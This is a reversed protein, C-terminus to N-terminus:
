QSQMIKLLSKLDKQLLSSEPYKELGDNLISLATDYDAANAVTAFSNHVSVAYNDMCQSYAKKIASSKPMVNMGDKAINAGELFKRAMSAENIKKLWLNEQLKNLRDAVKSNSFVIQNTSVGQLYKIGSDFNDILNLQYDVESLFMLEEIDSRTKASLYDKREEYCSSAQAFDMGNCFLLVTNYIANEYSNQVAPTIGYRAIVSELWLMADVFMANHQLKAAYNNCVTDFDDRSDNKSSVPEAKLFEYRAAAVSVATDFDDNEMSISSVNRGILSILMRDSVEHRGSYKRKPVTAYRSGRATEELNKKSGPNFGLPNTTEIDIKKDMTYVTCFCHEPTRQGTVFLDAARSLALYLVSASVCNYTGNYLLVDMQTQLEEYQVLIKEYMLELLREARAEEELAMFDSTIISDKLEAFQEMYIMGAASTSACGSFELAAAMIEEASLVEGAKQEMFVFSPELTPFGDQAILPMSFLILTFIAFFPRLKTKMRQIQKSKVIHLLSRGHM